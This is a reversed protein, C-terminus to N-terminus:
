DTNGNTLKWDDLNLKKTKSFEQIEDITYGMDKWGDLTVEACPNENKVPEEEWPQFEINVKGSDHLEDLWDAIKERSWKDSDNLHQVINWITQRERKTGKKFVPHGVEDVGIYFNELFCECPFEVEAKMGPLKKSINSIDLNSATVAVAQPPAISYSLMSNQKKPPMDKEICKQVYEAFVCSLKPYEHKNAIEDCLLQIIQYFDGFGSSALVANTFEFEVYDVKGNMNYKIGHNQTQQKNMNHSVHYSIYDFSGIDVHSGIDVVPKETGPEVWTKAWGDDPKLYNFHM